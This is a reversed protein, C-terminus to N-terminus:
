VRREMHILDDYSGDTLWVEDVWRGVNRFGAKQYLAIAARNQSFVSLKLKRLGLKRARMLGYKLM